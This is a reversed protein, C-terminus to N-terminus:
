TFSTSTLMLSARQLGRITVNVGYCDEFWVERGRCRSIIRHWFDLIRASPQQTRMLHSRLSLDRVFRLNPFADKSLLSCIQEILPFFPTDLDDHDDSFEPNLLRTDIDRIAILELTPHSPLLVHPAIWDPSEWHWEADASCIFERLNPCWDALPIPTVHRTNTLYHEEITSSSHGLELQSIKWGHQKFFMVFGEGTYSFDSSVVSVNALLPMDWSSLVGFTSNNLSLKLSRLAPLTVQMPSSSPTFPESFVARFNPSHSSLELYELRTTLNRLFPSMRLHFPADDYSTWSLRRIKPQALLTLIQEPSCRPDPSEECLNRQISHHDSYITLHPSHDLITRLDAPACREFVPTQIHLRRIFRGSRLHEELSTELLLRKALSKAQPAKSVWVFELVFRSAIANWQKNVLSLSIKNRLSALYDSYRDSAPSFDIFSLEQSGDLPDMTMATVERLVLEWIEQPIQSIDLPVIERQNVSASHKSRDYNDTRIVRLRNNIEFRRNSRFTLHKNCRLYRYFAGGVVSFALFVRVLM